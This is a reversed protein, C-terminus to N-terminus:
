SCWYGISHLGSAQQCTSPGPNRTTGCRGCEWEHGAPDVYVDKAGVCNPYPSWCGELHWGTQAQLALVSLLSAGSLALARILRRNM